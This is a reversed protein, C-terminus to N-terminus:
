EPMVEQTAVALESYLMSGAAARIGAKLQALNYDPTAGEAGGIQAANASTQLVTDVSPRSYMALLYVDCKIGILHPYEKLDVTFSTPNTTTTGSLVHQKSILLSEPSNGSGQFVPAVIMVATMLADASFNQNITATVVNNNDDFSIAAAPAPLLGANGLYHPNLTAYGSVLSGAELNWNTAGMLIRVLEGRDKPRYGRAALLHRGTDAMAAAFQSSLKLRARTAVQALTNPNAVQPQYSRAITKGDKKSFVMNGVRGSMTGVLGIIKAM